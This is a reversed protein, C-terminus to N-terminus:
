DKTNMLAIVALLLVCATAAYAGVASFGNGLIPIQTFGGISKEGVFRGVTTYIFMALGLLALLNGIAKM